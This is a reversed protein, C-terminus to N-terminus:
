LAYQCDTYKNYEELESLYEEREALYDLYLPYNREYSDIDQLYKNYADVSAKYSELDALYENYADLAESYIRYATLYESYLRSNEGYEALATLYEDYRQKASLYDSLATEYKETKEAIEAEIKPIDNIAKNLLANADEASIDLSLSYTVSVSEVGSESAGLFTAYYEGGRTEQTDPLKGALSAHTPTWTVTRGDSTEYSYEKAYIELEGGDYVASILSTTIGDDYHLSLDGYSVLYSREAEGIDEGLIYELLDASDMRSTNVAGPRSHDYDSGYVDARVFFPFLFPLLLLMALMAAVTEKVISKVSSM